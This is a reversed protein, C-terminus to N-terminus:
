IKKWGEGALRVSLLKAPRQRADFILNLGCGPCLEYARVNRELPGTADGSLEIDYLGLTQFVQVETMGTQLNQLRKPVDKLLTLPVQGAALPLSSTEPGPVQTKTPTSSCGTFFGATLLILIWKMTKLLNKQRGKQFRNM